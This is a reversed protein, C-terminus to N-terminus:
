GGGVRSLGLGSHGQLSLQLFSALNDSPNMTGGTVEGIGAPM